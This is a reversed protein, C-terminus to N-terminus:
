HFFESNFIGKICETSLFESWYDFYQTQQEPKEVGGEGEQELVEQRPHGNGNGVGPYVPTYTHLEITMALELIYMCYTCIRIAMAM